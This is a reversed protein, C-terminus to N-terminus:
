YDFNIGIEVINMAKKLTDEDVVIDKLIDAIKESYLKEILTTNFNVFWEAYKGDSYKGSDLPYKMVIHNGADTELMRIEGEDMELLANYLDLMYDEYGSSDLDSLYYGDSYAEEVGEIQVWNNKEAEFGSYNGDSIKGLIEEARALREAMQAETYYHKIGEGSEDVVVSPQGKKQDYIIKGDTDYYITYGYKDKIRNGNADYVYVGNKSDYVPHGSETDFYIINGQEDREYEYYFDPIIIQKFRVYHEKYYEEKVTDGILDGGRYLHELIMSSKEEIEYSVRLADADLGYKSILENFKGEDKDGDYDIYFDVEEDIAELTLKPLALGEKEFLVLSALYRKCNELVASEVFERYTVGDEVESEWFAASKVDYGNRALNGKARSLLLSYLTLPVETGEYSMVPDKVEAKQEGGCGCLLTALIVLALSLAVLRILVSKIDSRMKLM